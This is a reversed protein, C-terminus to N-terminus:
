VAGARSLAQNQASILDGRLKNVADRLNKAIDRLEDATSINSDMLGAAADFEAKRAAADDAERKLDSAELKAGYQQITAASTTMTNVTQSVSSYLQVGGGAGGAIGGVVAGAIAGSLNAWASDRDNQIEKERATQNKQAEIKMEAVAKIQTDYKGEIAAQKNASAQERIQQATAALEKLFDNYNPYTSNAIIDRIQKELSGAQREITEFASVAAARSPPLGGPGTLSAFSQALAKLDQLTPTLGLAAMNQELQQAAAFLAEPIDEGMRPGPLVPMGNNGLIEIKGSSNLSLTLTQTTRETAQPGTTSLDTPVYSLAVSNSTTTVQM